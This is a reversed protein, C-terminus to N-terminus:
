LAVAITKGDDAERLSRELHRRNKPSSLLYATELLSTDEDL